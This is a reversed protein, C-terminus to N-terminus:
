GIVMLTIDWAWLTGNQKIAFSNSNGVSISKWCQSQTQINILLVFLIITKKM